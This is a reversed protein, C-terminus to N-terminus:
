KFIINFYVMHRAHEGREYDYIAWQTVFPSEDIGAGDNIKDCLSMYEETTSGSQEEVGAYRGVNSDICMYETFGSMALMFSAKRHSVGVLSNDIVDLLTAYRDNRAHSRVAIALDEWNVRDFTRRLWNKKNGGYVTELAAEKLTMDSNYYTVFASEHRDRETKISLVAFVYAKELVDAAESIPGHEVINRVAALRDKTNEYDSRHSQYWKQLATM